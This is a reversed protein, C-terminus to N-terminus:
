EDSHLSDTTTRKENTTSSTHSEALDDDSDNTDGDTEVLGVGSGSTFCEGVVSSSDVSLNGEDGDVDTRQATGRIKQKM